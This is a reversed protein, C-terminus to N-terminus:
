SRWSDLQDFLDKCVTKKSFYLGVTNINHNKKEKQKNPFLYVSMEAM